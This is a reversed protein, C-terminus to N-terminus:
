LSSVVWDPIKEAFLEQLCILVNKLLLSLQYREAKKMLQHWDLAPQQNNIILMLEILRQIQWSKIHLPKHYLHSLKCIFLFEDALSLFKTQINDIKGDISNYWIQEDINQQTNGWFLYNYLLIKDQKKHKKFEILSLQCQDNNNTEEVSIFWGLEKLSKIALLNNKASIFLTYNNILFNGQHQYINSALALNGFIIVPINNGQLTKIIPKIEKLKLKNIYWTKKYIGKLRKMELDEVQHATLNSYLLNLWTMSYDYSDQLNVLKRWEKWANLANEGSLFCAKLLLKQEKNLYSAQKSQKLNM